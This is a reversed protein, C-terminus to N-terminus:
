ERVEWEHAAFNNREWNQNPQKEIFEKALKETAFVGQFENNHHTGYEEIDEEWDRLVIWVKM